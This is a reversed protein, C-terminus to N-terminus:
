RPSARPARRISSPTAGHRFVSGVGQGGKVGDQEIHIAQHQIGFGGIARGPLLRGRINSVGQVIGKQFTQKTPMGIIHHLCQGLRQPCIEGAFRKELSGLLMPETANFHM